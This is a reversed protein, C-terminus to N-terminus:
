RRIFLNRADVQKVGAVEQAVQIAIQRERESNVIGTLNVVGKSTDVNIAFASVAPEAILGAKVKTTITADDIVEGPSRRTPTSACGVVVLVALILGGWGKILGPSRM